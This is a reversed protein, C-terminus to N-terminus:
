LHTHPPFETSGHGFIYQKFSSRCEFTHLKIFVAEMKFPAVRDRHICSSRWRATAFSYLSQQKLPWRSILHPPTASTVGVVPPQGWPRAWATCAFAIGLHMCPWSQCEPSNKSSNTGGEGFIVISRKPFYGSFYWNTETETLLPSQVPAMLMIPLCGVVSECRFGKLM